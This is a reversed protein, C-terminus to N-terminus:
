KVVNKKKKKRVCVRVDKGNGLGFVIGFRCPKGSGSGAM